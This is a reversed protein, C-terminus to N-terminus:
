LALVGLLTAHHQLQVMWEFSLDALEGGGEMKRVRWGGETAEGREESLVRDLDERLHTVRVALDLRELL